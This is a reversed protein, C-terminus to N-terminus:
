ADAQIKGILRVLERQEDDSLRDAVSQEFDRVRTRARDFFAEQADEFFLANYRRDHALQERRVLASQELRNLVPTLTSKDIGFANALEMQTIGPNARILMLLGFAGPTLGIDGLSREFERFVNAQARRLLYGIYNPLEDYDIDRGSDAAQVPIDMEISM